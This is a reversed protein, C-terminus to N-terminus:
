TPVCFSPPVIKPAALLVCWAPPNIQQRFLQHVFGRRGALKWVLELIRLTCPYVLLLYFHSISTNLEFLYCYWRLLQMLQPLVCFM